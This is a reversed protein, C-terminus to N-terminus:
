CRGSSSTRRGRGPSSRPGPGARRRGSRGPWPRGGCRVAPWCRGRGPRWRRRAPRGSRWAAVAPRATAARPRVCRRSTATPWRGTQRRAHELLQGPPAAVGLVERDRHRREGPGGQGRDVVEPAAAPLGPEGPQPAVLAGRRRRGLREGHAQAHGGPEGPQGGALAQEGGADAPRPAPGARGRAGRGAGRGGPRRDTRPPARYPITAPDVMPDLPPGLLDLRREVIRRRGPQDAAAGPLPTAQSVSLRWPRRLTAVATRGSCISFTMPSGAAASGMRTNTPRSLAGVSASRTARAM